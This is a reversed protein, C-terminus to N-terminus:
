IARLQMQRVCFHLHLQRGEAPMLIELRATYIWEPRSIFNLTGIGCSAHEASDAPDGTFSASWAPRFSRAAEHKIQGSVSSQPYVWGGSHGGMGKRARLIWGKQSVSPSRLNPDRESAIYASVAVVDYGRFSLETVRSEHQLQLVSSVSRACPFM